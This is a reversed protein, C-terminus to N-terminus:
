SCSGTDIGVKSFAVRVDAVNYKYDKTASVVGCAAETFTQMSSTWYNMNAKVMVDFAKRTNWDRSTAILYFAKNFIGAAHHPDMDDSYDKVNDISEADKAPNDMYRLAGEGKTIDRGLDWTNKQNLYYELAASAMDSFAEHLAAMQPYSFDLQSHQSTFGHSIEHATVGLSVLPYFRRDGDGYTMQEGDWFANEYHRGYHVRMVLKMPTNDENILAPIGYWEKYMNNVVTASYMADLSPSYGGNEQDHKWRTFNNDISLWKLHNSEEGMDFCPSAVIENDYSVDRVEIDSNALECFSFKLTQGPLVPLELTAIEVDLAPLHGAAGDYVVPNKENGGNGGAKAYITGIPTPSPEPTPTPEPTPEDNMTMVQDWHRYVKLTAADVISTPRHAGARGDDAYFSVLYAYRAKKKDDIYIIKKVTERKYFKAPLHSKQEYTSKEQQLAAAKQEETIAHSPTEALDREIDEYVVGNMTAKNSVAALMHGRKAHKVSPTHVVATAGWIPTGAYMQQVRVHATQNEDINTRTEKLQMKPAAGALNLRPASFQAIYNASQHRLDIATAASAANVMMLSTVLTTLKLRM